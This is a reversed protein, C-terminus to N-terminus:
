VTVHPLAAFEAKVRRTGGKGRKRACRARAQTVAHAKDVRQALRAERAHGRVEFGYHAVDLGGLRVAFLM